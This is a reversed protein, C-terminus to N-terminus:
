IGIIKLKNSKIIAGFIREMSHTYTGRKSDTFSGNCFKSYELDINITKFFKEWIDGKVWFITGAVFEMNYLNLKFKKAYQNVIHRNTYLGNSDCINKKNAVM